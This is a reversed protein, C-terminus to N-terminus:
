GGTRRPVFNKSADSGFTQNHGTQKGGRFPLNSKKAAPSMSNNLASHVSNSHGKTLADKLQKFTSTERRAADGAQAGGAAKAGILRAATQAALGTDILPTAPTGTPKAGSKEKSAAKKAAPKRAAAKAPKSSDAAPQPEAAEAPAAATEPARGAQTSNEKPAATKEKAM